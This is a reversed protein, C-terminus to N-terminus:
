GEITYSVSVACGSQAMARATVAADSLITEGDIAFAGVTPELLYGKLCWATADAASAFIRTADFTITCSRCAVAGPRVREAGVCESLRVGPRDAIRINDPGVPSGDTSRASDSCLITSGLTVTM